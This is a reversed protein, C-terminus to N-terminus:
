SNLENYINREEIVKPDATYPRIHSFAWWVDNEKVEVSRHLVSSVTFPGMGNENIFRQDLDSDTNPEVLDGIKFKM